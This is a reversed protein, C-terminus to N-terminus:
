AARHATSHSTCCPRMGGFSAASTGSAAARLILRTEGDPVVVVRGNGTEDDGDEGSALLCFIVAYSGASDDDDDGDVDDVEINFVSSSLPLGVATFSSSSLLVTPPDDMLVM